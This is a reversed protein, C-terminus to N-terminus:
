MMMVNKKAILEHSYQVTGPELCVFDDSNSVDAEEIAAVFTRVTVRVEVLCGGYGDFKLVLLIPLSVFCYCCMASVM